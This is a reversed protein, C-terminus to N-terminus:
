GSWLEVRSKVLETYQKEMEVARADDLEKLMGDYIGDFQEPKVLIAEPIRKPIIDQTKQYIVNYDGDQPAAINWAAGWPKVPFEKESPFLDKWTTAGYAKLTVKEPETYSAIIQDPFNTTYYNGTADKVGDGYHASLNSYLSIGTVKTFNANDNVKKDLVVQPIVRKGNVLNYHKDKIGWNILVQGEDSALFDIFKIARM